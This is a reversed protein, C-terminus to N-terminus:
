WKHTSVDTTRAVHRLKDAKFSQGVAWRHLSDRSDAPYFPNAITLDKTLESSGTARRRKTPLFNKEGNINPESKLVSSFAPHQWLPFSKCHSHAATVESHYNSKRTRTSQTQRKEEPFNDGPQKRKEPRAKKGWEGCITPIEETFYLQRQLVSQVASLGPHTKRM